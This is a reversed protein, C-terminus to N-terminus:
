YRAAADASAPPRDQRAAGPHRYARATGAGRAMRFLITEANDNLNHATAIVDAGHEKATRELFAYRM